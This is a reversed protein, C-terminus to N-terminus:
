KIWNRFIMPCQIRGTQPSPDPRDNDPHERDLACCAEIFADREEFRGDSWDIDDYGILAHREGIAEEFLYDDEPNAAEGISLKFVQRDGVAYQGGGGRSVSARHALRRFIGEEPVLSFGASGAGEAEGGGQVPRLGEVFEEYSYSQHFTVFDIRRAEVLESYRAMLTERDAPAAGDCLTVAEKATSWTKGTGPPGYLILNVPNQTVYSEQQLTCLPNAGAGKVIEFALKELHLRAETGNCSKGDLPAGGPMFQHAVGFIAKSPYREGARLVWYDIDKGFGYNGLFADQGLAECEGIAKNVAEVDPKPQSKEGRYRRYYNVTTRLNSLDRYLNSTLPVKSPNPRNQAKDAASYRLSEM